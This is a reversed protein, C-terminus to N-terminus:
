TNEQKIIIKNKGAIFTHAAYALKVM